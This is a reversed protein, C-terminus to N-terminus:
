SVSGHITAGTLRTVLQALTVIDAGVPGYTARDYVMEIATMLCYGGKAMALTLTVCDSPVM